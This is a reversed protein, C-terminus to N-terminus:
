VELPRVTAEGVQLTTGDYVVQEVVLRSCGGCERIIKAHKATTRGKAGVIGVIVSLLRDAEEAQIEIADGRFM